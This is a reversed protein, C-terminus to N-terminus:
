LLQLENTVPIHFQPYSPVTVVFPDLICLLPLNLPWSQWSQTVSPNRVMCLTLTGVGANNLPWSYVDEEVRCTELLRCLFRLHSIGAGVAVDCRPIPVFIHCPPPGLVCIQTKAWIGQPNETGRARFVPKSWWGPSKEWWAVKVPMFRWGLHLIWSMPLYIQCYIFYKEFM